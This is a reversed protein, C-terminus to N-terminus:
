WMGLGRSCSGVNHLMMRFGTGCGGVNHLRMRFRTGCKGVDSFSRTVGQVRYWCQSAEAM